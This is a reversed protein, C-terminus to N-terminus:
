LGRRLGGLFALIALFYWRGQQDGKLALAKSKVFLTGAKCGPAGEKDKSTM